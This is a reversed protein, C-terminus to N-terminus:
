SVECLFKSKQSRKLDPQMYGMDRHAYARWYEMAGLEGQTWGIHICKGRRHCLSPQNGLDM